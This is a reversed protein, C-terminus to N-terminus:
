DIKLENNEKNVDAMYGRPDITISSIETKPKKIDFTYTPHAWAWNPLVITANPTPKVGRTM